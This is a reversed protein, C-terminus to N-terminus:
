ISSLPLLLQRFRIEESDMHSISPNTTNKEDSWGGQHMWWHVGVLDYAGPRRTKQSTEKSCVGSPHYNQTEPTTVRMDGARYDAVGPNILFLRLLPLGAPSQTEAKIQLGNHDGRKKEVPLYAWHVALNNVTNMSGGWFPVQRVPPM